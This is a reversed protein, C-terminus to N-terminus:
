SPPGATTTGFGSAALWSFGSPLTRRWYDWHQTPTLHSRHHPDTGTSATLPEVLERPRNSGGVWDGPRPHVAVVYGFVADNEGLTLAADAGRGVGMVAASGPALRTHFRWVLAPLLDFRLSALQMQPYANQWGANPDHFRDATPFVGIVPPLQGSAILQDLETNVRGGVFWDSGSGPIGHLFLIVPLDRTDVGPPVYVEAVEPRGQMFRADYVLQDLDGRAIGTRPTTAANATADDFRVLNAAGLVLTPGYLVLAVTAGAATLVSLRWWSPRRARDAFYGFPLAVAHGWDAMQHHAVLLIVVGIFAAVKWRRSDLRSALAGLAAAVAMSGGYDINQGARVLIPIGTWNFSGVAVAIVASGTVHGLATVFLARGHGARREYPIVALLLALPMTAAMFWNRSLVFSTGLTWWRHAVLSPWGFGLQSGLRDGIQGVYAGTVIGTLVVALALGVAVWPFAPDAPRSERFPRVWPELRSRVAAGM